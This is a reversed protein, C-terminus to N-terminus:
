LKTFMAAIEYSTKSTKLIPLGEKEARELTEFDVVADEAIIICSIEALLSVAVINVHGQITIWASDAPARGMVWSLLDCIYVEKITKNMGAGGALLKLNFKESAKSVTIDM